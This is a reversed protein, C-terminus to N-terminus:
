LVIFFRIFFKCVKTAIRVCYSHSLDTNFTRNVLTENCCRRNELYTHHISYPREFCCATIAVQDSNSTNYESSGSSGSESPENSEEDSSSQLSNKDESRCSISYMGGIDAYDFDQVPSGFMENLPQFSTSREEDDTWDDYPEEESSYLRNGSQKIFFDEETDIFHQSM